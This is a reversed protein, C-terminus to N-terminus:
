NIQSTFFVDVIIKENIYKLNNILFWQKLNEEIMKPDCLLLQDNKKKMDIKKLIDYYYIEEKNLDIVIVNYKLTTM